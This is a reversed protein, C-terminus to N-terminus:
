FPPEGKELVATLEEEWFEVLGTSVDGNAYVVRCLYSREVPPRRPDADPVAVRKVVLLVLGGGLKHALTEGVAFAFGGAAPGKCDTVRLTEGV